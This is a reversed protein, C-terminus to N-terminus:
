IVVANLQPLAEYQRIDDEVCVNQMVEAVDKAITFGHKIMLQYSYAREARSKLLLWQEPKTLMWKEEDVARELEEVYHNYFRFLKGLRVEESLGVGVEVVDVFTRFNKNDSLQKLGSIFLDKTLGLLPRCSPMDAFSIANPLMSQIEILVSAADAQIVRMLTENVHDIHNRLRRKTKEVALSGDVFCDDLMDIIKRCYAKTLKIEEQQNAAHHSNEWAHIEDIRKGVYPVDRCSILIGQINNTSAIMYDLECKKVYVRHLPVSKKAFLCIFDGRKSFNERINGIKVLNEAVIVIKLARVPISVM